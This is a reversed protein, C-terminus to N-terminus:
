EYDNLLELDCSYLIDNCKDIDYIEKEIFYLIAVDFYKDEYLMYHCSSLFDYFEDDNLELALGLRIATKRNPIHGQRIKSFLRRDIHARKYVEAEDIGLKKTFKIILDYFSPKLETNHIVSSPTESKSRSAGSSFSSMSIAEYREMEEPSLYDEEALDEDLLEEYERDKERLLDLREKLEKPVEVKNM